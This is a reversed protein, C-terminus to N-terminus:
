TEQKELRIKTYLEHNTFIMHAIKLACIMTKVRQIM